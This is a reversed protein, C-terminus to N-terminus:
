RSNTALKASPKAVPTRKEAEDITRIISATVSQRGVYRRIIRDVRSEEWGMIEAIDRLSLGAQYFRTAATGRLDHFRLETGPLAKAKAKTFMTDNVASWPRGSSTTLVTTGRKPIRGLLQRLGRYLPVIAEVRGGSKSTPIVIADEGIHSWSLVKLDGARLGTAVALDVVDAVEPTCVAKIAALDADTWIIDARNSRYLQKIGDCPNASIKDLDVAHTLVRSLVQIAYDASRPRDAWTDRWRKIVPRIKDPHDFLGVRYDGFREVIRDLWRSWVRRTTESLGTYAPSARYLGVLARMQNNDIPRRSDLAAAYSTMFEPSGPVGKLRPGGRWAYHYQRGKATVTVVGALSVKVM